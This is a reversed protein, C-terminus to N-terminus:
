IRYVGKKILNLFTVWFASQTIKGYYVYQLLEPELNHPMERYYAFKEKKSVKIYQYWVLFGIMLIVITFFFSLQKVTVM